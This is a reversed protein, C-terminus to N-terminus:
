TVAPTDTPKGRGEYEKDIRDRIQARSLGEGKWKAADLTEELCIQCNAAHDRFEGDKAYFCDKLNEYQEADQGCGCYCPIATLLEQEGVAIGYARAAMSSRYAYEPLGTLIPATDEVQPASVPAVDAAQDPGGCASAAALLIGCFTSLVAIHRKM